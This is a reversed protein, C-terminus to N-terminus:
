VIANKGVVVPYNSQGMLVKNKRVVVSKDLIAHSMKVGTQILSNQMIISDKIVAGEEIQVGRFIICNEVTGEIICGDAVVSNRINVNEGYITPVEDKVKTYIPEGSDFLEASIEPSLMDMNVKYYSPLSYVRGAYGEYCYGHINLHEIEHLLIDRVFDHRGRSLCRNIHYELFEREMIYIGMSIQSSFPRTPDVEIDTIRGNEDTKIGVHHPLDSCDAMNNYMVTIDAKSNIHQEYMRDFTTNMIIDSGAILVYRRKSANIYDLIGNLVDLDGQVEGFKGMEPPLVVLGHRKRNLDWAAGSGLHDMLSRYHTQTPIGVRDIDSNVMNSLMFDVLRYRSAVPVAGIPRNRTIEALELGSNGAMIIGLTDNM